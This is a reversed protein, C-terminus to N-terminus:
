AEVAFSSASPFTSILKSSFFQLFKIANLLKNEFLAPLAYHKGNIKQLYLYCCKNSLHKAMNVKKGFIMERQLSKDTTNRLNSHIGNSISM